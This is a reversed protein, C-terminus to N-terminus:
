LPLTGNSPDAVPAGTHVGEQHYRIVCFLAHEVAHLLCDGELPRIDVSVLASMAQIQAQAREVDLDPDESDLIIATPCSVHSMLGAFEVGPACDVLDAWSIPESVFHGLGTYASVCEVRSSVPRWGAKGALKFARRKIAGVGKASHHFIPSDFGLFPCVAVVGDVGGLRTEWGQWM